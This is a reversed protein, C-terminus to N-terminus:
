GPADVVWGLTWNKCYGACTSNRCIFHQTWTGDSLKKPKNVPEQEANCQDCTPKTM